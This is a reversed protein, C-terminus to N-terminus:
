PTLPNPPEFPPQHAFALLNQTLTFNPLVPLVPAPSSSPTDGEIRAGCPRNKQQTGENTGFAFTVWSHSKEFSVRPPRAGSKSRGGM